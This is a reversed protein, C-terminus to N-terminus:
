RATELLRIQGQTDANSSAAIMQLKIQQLQDLLEQLSMGEYALREDPSTDVSDEETEASREETLKVSYKEVFEDM